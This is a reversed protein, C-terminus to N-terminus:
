DFRLGISDLSATRVEPLAASAVVLVNGVFPLQLELSSNQALRQLPNCVDFQLGLNPQM